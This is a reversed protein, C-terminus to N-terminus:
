FGLDLGEVAPALVAAAVAKGGGVSAVPKKPPAANPQRDKKRQFDAPITIKPAPGRQIGIINAYIKGDNGENHQVVLNKAIGILSELDFSNGDIDKGLILKVDKRLSAKEHLSKTYRKFLYKTRGAEDSEDTLWTFQVKEKPGFATQIVGLDVIDALVAKHVGESVPERDAGSNINVVISM